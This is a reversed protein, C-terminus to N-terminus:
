ELTIRVAAGVANPIDDTVKMPVEQTNVQPFLMLSFRSKIFCFLIHFISIVMKEGESFYM